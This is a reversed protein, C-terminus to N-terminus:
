GIGGANEWAEAPLGWSRLGVVCGFGEIAEGQEDVRATANLLIRRCEALRVPGVM